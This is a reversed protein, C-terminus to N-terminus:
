KRAKSVHCYWFEIAYFLFPPLTRRQIPLKVYDLNWHAHIRDSISLGPDTLISYSLYTICASAIRAHTDPFWVAATSDLYEQTTYHVLSVYHTEENVVLLGACAALIDEISSTNSEDFSRTGPEIALATRLESVSLLRESQTTWALADRALEAQEQTQGQIRLM